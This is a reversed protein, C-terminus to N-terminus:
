AVQDCNQPQIPICPPKLTHQRVSLRYDGVYAQAVAVDALSHTCAWEEQSLEGASVKQEGTLDSLMNSNCAHM